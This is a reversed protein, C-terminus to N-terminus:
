TFPYSDFKKKSYRNLFILITEFLALHLKASVEFTALSCTGHKLLSLVVHNTMQSQYLLTTKKLQWKWNSDSGTIYSKNEMVLIIVRHKPSLIEITFPANGSPYCIFIGHSGDSFRINLTGTLELFGKRKSEIPKPDLQSTDTKFDYCGTLYAIHDIYHIANSMLGNLSGHTLYTLPQNEFTDKLGSYFPDTRMSCNVWAKCRKQSLLKAVEEYQPRKDFLIKEFIIYKPSTLNLLQKTVASRVNSGTAIIALDVPNKIQNLGQLYSIKHKLHTSVEEYRKKALALSDSSPDIAQISLPQSIKALGQLHRSGINGVGIICINKFM